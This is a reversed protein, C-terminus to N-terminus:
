INRGGRRQAAASDRRVLHDPLNRPYSRGDCPRRSAGRDGPAAMRPSRRGAATVTKEYLKFEAGGGFETAYRAVAERPHLTGWVNQEARADAARITLNAHEVRGTASNSFGRRLRPLVPGLPTARHQHDTAAGEPVALHTIAHLGVASLLAAPRAPVVMERDDPWCDFSTLEGMGPRRSLGHHGSLDGRGDIAPSASRRFENWFATVAVQILLSAGLAGLPGNVVVGFRDGRRWEMVDEITATHHEAVIEFCQDSLQTSTHVRLTENRMLSETPLLHQAVM